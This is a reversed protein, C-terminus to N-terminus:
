PSHKYSIDLYEYGMHALIKPYHPNEKLRKYSDRIDFVTIWRLWIIRLIATYLLLFSSCLTYEVDPLSLVFTFVLIFVVFTFYGGQFCYRIKRSIPVVSWEISHQNMLYAGCSCRYIPTNLAGPVTFLTMDGYYMKCFPCYLYDHRNDLTFDLHHLSSHKQLFDIVNASLKNCKPCFIDTCSMPASCYKCQEQSSTQNCKQNIKNRTVIFEVFPAVIIFSFCAYVLFFSHSVCNGSLWPILDKLRRPSLALVLIIPPISRLITPSSAFIYLISGFLFLIYLYEVTDTILDIYPENRLLISVIGSILGSLIYFLMKRHTINM